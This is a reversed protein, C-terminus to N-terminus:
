QKLGHAVKDTNGAGLTIIISDQNFRDTPFTKIIYEISEFLECNTRESIKEFLMESSVEGSDKERAGYIPLLYVYDALSLTNVFGDFFDRTRSYLHPQFIVIIKKGPFFDRVGSVLGGIGEPNHGYDDYIPTGYKTTGIYEFRRKTGTYDEIIPVIKETEIDTIVELTRLALEANEKNYQGPIKLNWENVHGHNTSVVTIAHEQAKEIVGKLNPDQTNCILVGGVQIKEVLRIFVQQYNVVTGFYDLHDPTINTLVLVTPELNLFSEKYECAEVVFWESNGYRFNSNYRAMVGGVVITPDFGLEDLVEGIMSTTTTKGNTGAIAITKKNKSIHGLFEPYSFTQIGTKKAAIYEVDNDQIAPTFVVLDIDKTISAAQAQGTYMLGYEKELQIVAESYSQDSGSVIYNEQHLFKAIASVGAGGVGILHARKM